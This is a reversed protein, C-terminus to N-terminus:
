NVQVTGYQQGQWVHSFNRNSPYQIVAFECHQQPSLIKLLVFLQFMYFITNLITVFTHLYKKSM